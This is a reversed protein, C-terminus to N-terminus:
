RLLIFIRQYMSQADDTRAWLPAVTLYQLSTKVQRGSDGRFQMVGLLHAIFTQKQLLRLAIERFIIHLYKWYFIDWSFCSDLGWFSSKSLSTLLDLWYVSISISVLIKENEQSQKWEDLHLLASEQLIPIGSPQISDVEYSSFSKRGLGM